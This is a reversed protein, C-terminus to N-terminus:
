IKWIEFIEFIEEYNYHVKKELKFSHIQKFLYCTTWGAMIWECINILRRILLMVVPNFIM